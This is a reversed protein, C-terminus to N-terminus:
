NQEEMREASGGEGQHLQQLPSVLSQRWTWRLQSGTRARGGRTLRIDGEQQGVVGQAKRPVETHRTNMSHLGAPNRPRETDWQAWTQGLHGTPFRSGTDKHATPRHRRPQPWVALTTAKADCKGGERTLSLVPVM